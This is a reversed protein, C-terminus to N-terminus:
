PKLNASKSGKNMYLGEPIKICSLQWEYIGPKYYLVFRRM